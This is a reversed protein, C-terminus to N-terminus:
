LAGFEPAWRIPAIPRIDLEALERPPQGSGLRAVVRFRILDTGDPGPTFYRTHQPRYVLENNKLDFYWSGGPVQDLAPDRLGGLYGPPPQALWGVPNETQMRGVAVLGGDLIRSASQLAQASRIAGITAEMATKEAIEQYRLLRDLAISALIGVLCVVIVLEFLTFGRPRRSDPTM